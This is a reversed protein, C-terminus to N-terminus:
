MYTGLSGTVHNIGIPKDSTSSRVIEYLDRHDHGFVALRIVHQYREVLATYRAGWRPNCTYCGSAIHGAIIVVRNEQEAQSLEDRLWQM